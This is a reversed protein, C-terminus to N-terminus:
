RPVGYGEFHQGDPRLFRGGWRLGSDELVAVLRQDITPVAGLPNGAVNLDVAAGWAHRSLSSAGRVARASYCGAFQGPQVTSTLGRRVVEELAPALADFVRRHCRFRGLLPVEAVVLHRDAWRPDQVFGGRTRRLAFEGFIEKVHAQPLVEDGRRAFPREGPPRIRLTQGPLAQRVAAEVADTTAGEGPRLLLYGPRVVGVSRGLGTPLAVEYGGVLADDVVGAVPVSGGGVLRLASGATLGRLAASTRSLVAGRELLRALGADGSAEGFARADAAVAEVPIEPYQPDGSAVALDGTRALVVEAVATTGSLRAPAAEPLGGLASVVTWGAFASTVPPAPPLPPSSQSPAPVPPAPGPPTPSAPPPSGTPAPADAVPSGPGSQCAGVLLALLTLLGATRRCVPAAQTRGANRGRVAGPAAGPRDPRRRPRINLVKGFRAELSKLTERSAEPASDANHVPVRTM